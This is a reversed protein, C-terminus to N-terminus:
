GSYELAHSGDWARWHPHNMSLIQNTVRTVGQQTRNKSDGQSRSPLYQLALPPMPYQKAIKFSNPPSAPHGRPVSSRAHASLCFAGRKRTPRQQEAQGQKRSYGKEISPGGPRLVDTDTREPDIEATVPVVSPAIVTVVSALV